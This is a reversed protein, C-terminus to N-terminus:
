NYPSSVDFYKVIIFISSVAIVIPEIPIGMFQLNKFEPILGITYKQLLSLVGFLLTYTATVSVFHLVRRVAPHLQSVRKSM